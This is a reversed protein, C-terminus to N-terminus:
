DAPQKELYQRPSLGFCAKFTKYFNSPSTYGLLAAVEEVSLGSSKLLYLGNQMRAELKLQSFSKGTEQRILASIYTPHYGFVEGLKKLSAEQYHRLIYDQIQQALPVKVPEEEPAAGRTIALLLALVLPRLLAQSSEPDAAYECIMIEVLQRALPDEEFRVHLYSDAYRNDAAELFFHFLRPSEALVSYFERFFAARQILIACITNKQGPGAVVAYGSYPQALYAEGERITVRREDSQSLAEFDGELAFNIFFFDHRHFKQFIGVDKHVSVMISEDPRGPWPTTLRAEEDQGEPNGDWTHEYYRTNLRDIAEELKLAM